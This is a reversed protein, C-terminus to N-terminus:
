DLFDKCVCLLNFQIASPLLVFILMCVSASSTCILSFFNANVDTTIQPVCKRGTCYIYATQKPWARLFQTSYTHVHPPLKRNSFWIWNASAWGLDEWEVTYCEPARTLCVFFFLVASTFLSDSSVCHCFSIVFSLLSPFFVLYVM